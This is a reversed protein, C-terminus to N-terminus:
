QQGYKEGSSTTKVHLAATQATQLTDCKTLKHAAALNNINELSHVGMRIGQEKYCYFLCLIQRSKSPDNIADKVLRICQRGGINLKRGLMLLKPHKVTSPVNQFTPFL